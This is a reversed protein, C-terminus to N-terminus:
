PIVFPKVLPHVPLCALFQAVTKQVGPLVLKPRIDALPQLVFRRTTLRPHPLILEATNLIIDGAYLLDLDITRPANRPHETPRGMEREIQQLAHLLALPDGTYEIEMVANLYPATGPACDVPETEYIKSFLPTESEERRAKTGEHSFLQKELLMVADRGAQLNALRDGMNSGLAIGCRM